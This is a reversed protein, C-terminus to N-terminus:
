PGFEVTGAIDDRLWVDGPLRTRSGTLSADLYELCNTPQTGSVNVLSGAWIQAKVPSGRKLVIAALTGDPMGAFRGGAADTYGGIMILGDETTRVCRLDVSLFDSAHEEGLRRAADLGVTMRGTVSSGDRTAEFEVRDWDRIFFSGRAVLEPSPAPTANTGGSGSGAPLFQYGVIVVVLVAAAAAISKAYTTM